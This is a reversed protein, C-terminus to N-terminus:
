CSPHAGVSDDIDVTFLGAQFPEHAILDQGNLEPMRALQFFGDINCVQLEASGPGPQVEIMPDDKPSRAIARLIVEIRWLDARHKPEIVNATSVVENPQSECRDVGLWRWTTGSNEKCEFAPPGHGEEVFIVTCAISALM